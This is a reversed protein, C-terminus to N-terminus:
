PSARNATRQRHKKWLRSPQRASASFGPQGPSLFQSPLHIGSSKLSWRFLEGIPQGDRNEFQDALTDLIDDHKGKPFRLIELVVDNWCSINDAFRITGQIFWAQLGKIIRYQKSGRGSNQLEVINLWKGRKAQERNIYGKLTSLFHDKQIKFDINSPFLQQIAFLYDVVQKDDFHGRLISLVDCRGDSDFGCTTMVIFDGLANKEMNALDVTTHVRYRPMLEAIMRAPFRKIQDMTALGDGGRIPNLKYQSAFLM